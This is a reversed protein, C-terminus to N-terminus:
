ASSLTTTATRADDTKDSDPTSEVERVWDYFRDGIYDILDSPYFHYEMIHAHCMRTGIASTEVTEYTEAAKETQETETEESVSETEDAATEINEQTIAMKCSPM